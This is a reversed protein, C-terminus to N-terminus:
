GASVRTVRQRALARSCTKENLREIWWALAKGKNSTRWAVYQTAEQKPEAVRKILLRGAGAEDRALSEPLYGVGLGLRQAVVKAAIDPVVLTEQGTILGTSRPAGARSTDGVAIARHAFIQTPKLPEPVSALAHGPAVCFLFRVRNM